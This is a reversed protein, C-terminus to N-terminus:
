NSHDIQYSCLHSGSVFYIKGELYDGGTEVPVPSEAIMSLSFSRPDIKVIGKAFLIYCDRKNGKVFIRPSQAWATRGFREEVNERHIIQKKVPDFVFFTKLDAIGYILGNEGLFLDSYDQVGPLLAERWEIKNTALNLIYLEAERAKKEGGTGPMTTTGGVIKNGSLSVMSMTSQDPILMSDTLLLSHKNKKNWLLLGGGTYGYEPTGSMIVTNGDATALIRHPRHTSLVSAALLSPNSETDKKTNIWPSSPNWELLAGQPYVGFYFKGNSGTMANFQGYAPLHHITKARPNFNFFRMPFAAGGVITGDPAAGVGMVLAGESSYDFSVTKETHKVPDRIMLKKEQLHLSAMIKGDPFDRYFLEQNGTIISKANSPDHQQLVTKKGDYFRFWQEKKDKLAQGYVRGDTSRYVFAQGRKREPEELLPIAKATAPQFAIIQSSTNGIGFYLWGKDDAALFRPYQKWNQKYQYGYDKFIRTVPDFSILGSNPYTVAWILGKDDETFGMAMQPLSEQHFTFNRKVPDFEVFNNKFLTYYKNKSSLLSAYPADGPTFPMPFEESKGTEADIMLLAYGGRHDFLWVLVVNRGNGDVTAVTGRHNSVPCAVGHDYFGNGLDQCVALVPLLMSIFFIM